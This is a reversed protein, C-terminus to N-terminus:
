VALRVLENEVEAMSEYRHTPIFSVCREIIPRILKPLIVCKTEALLQGNAIQNAFKDKDGGSMEYSIPLEGTIFQYAMIGFSYQDASRTPHVQESVRESIREPATYARVGKIGRLMANAGAFALDIIVVDNDANSIERDETCLIFNDPKIDNHPSDLITHLFHLAYSAKSLILAQNKLPLNKSESLINGLVPGNIYEYLLGQNCDIFKDDIGVPGLFKPIPIYDYNKSVRRRGYSEVKDNTFQEVRIMNNLVQETGGFYQAVRKQTEEDLNKCPLKLARFLDFDYRNDRVVFVDSWGGGAMKRIINYRPIQLRVLTALKELTDCGHKEVGKELFRKSGLVHFNDDPDIRSLFLSYDRPDYDTQKLRVLLDLYSTLTKSPSKSKMVNTFVKGLDIQNELSSILREMDGIDIVGEVRSCTPSVLQVDSFGRSDLLKQDWLHRSEEDAAFAVSIVKRVRSSLSNDLM